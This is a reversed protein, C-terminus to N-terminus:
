GSSRREREADYSDRYRVAREFVSSTVEEADAGNTLRYSVYAYVDRILPEPNKLPDSRMRRM